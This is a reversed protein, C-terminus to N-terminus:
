EDREDTEGVVKWDGVWNGNVDRIRGTDDWSLRDHTRVNSAVEELQRAMRHGDAGHLDDDDMNITLKFKM